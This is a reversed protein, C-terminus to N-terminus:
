LYSAPLSPSLEPLKTLVASPGTNTLVSEMRIHLAFISCGIMLERMELWTLRQSAKWLLQQVTWVKGEM